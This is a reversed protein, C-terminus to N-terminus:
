FRWVVRIAEPHWGSGPKTPDIAVHDVTALLVDRKWEFTATDWRERLPAGSRVDDLISRGNRKALKARNEAISAKLPDAAAFFMARDILRLVYHDRTLQALAEEDARIADLLGDAVDGDSENILRALADGTLSDFLATRVRAEVKEADRGIRGCAVSGPRKTCVYRRLKETTRRSVTPVGCLGCRAIGSLLYSRASTVTTRREPSNLLACLRVSEDATIVSPWVGPTVTGQHNRIGAIQGSTLMRKFAPPQWHKGTPTTIGRRELDRCVGKLGEGNLIRDVAERIVTVEGPVLSMRDYTYGYPRTGGSGPRGALALERAKRAGRVSINESEARAMGTMITAVVRGASTSTDVGDVLTVIRAGATECEEDLRSFDRLRRTLRDLKWAVVADIQGERVATLLREFEPRKVRKDFASVDVDEFVDAIEWGRSEAFKACDERQRATATQNGDRDESIRLYLAARVM